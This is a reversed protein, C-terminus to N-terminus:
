EEAERSRALEEDVTAWLDGSEPDAAQDGSAEDGTREGEQGDVSGDTGPDSGDDGQGAERERSLIEDVADWESAPTEQTGLLERLLRDRQLSWRVISERLSRLDAPGMDPHERISQEALRCSAELRTITQITAQTVLPVDGLRDRVLRELRTRLRSVDHGASAHRRGLYAVPLERRKSRAGHRMANCNNRPAGGRPTDTM